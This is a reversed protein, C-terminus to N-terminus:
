APPEPVVTPSVPIVETGSRGNDSHHIMVEDMLAIMMLLGRYHPDPPAPRWTGHDRVRIRLRQGPQPQEDEDAPRRDREADSGAGLREGDAAIHEIFAEIVASIEIVPDPAAPPYAGATSGTKFGGRLRRQADHDTSVPCRAASRPLPM